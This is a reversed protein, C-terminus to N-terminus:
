VWLRISAESVTKGACAPTIGGLGRGRQRVEHRGRAHPPSGVGSPRRTARPRDEGRMRPHDPRARGTRRRGCRRGRAHPPSGTSLSFSSFSFSDEGRMRPHDVTCSDRSSRKGTKGACAPTIREPASQYGGTRRRGRAHPPSGSKIVEPDVHASDEGRMRPHHSWLRFAFLLASTKGACAPTIWTQQSIPAASCQRGRAHPPSGTRRRRHRTSPRDEGRMRPHDAKASRIAFCLFTKGACAPTIGPDFETAKMNRPRGRAHPPSGAGEVVGWGLLGDEGRM